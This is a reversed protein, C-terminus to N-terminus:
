LLVVRKLPYDQAFLLGEVSIWGHRLKAITRPMPSREFPEMSPFSDESEQSVYSYVELNEPLRQLQSILDKVLM